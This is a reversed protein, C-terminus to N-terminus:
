PNIPKLQVRRNKSRGGESHNSAIPKDFGYGKYSLRSSSIGKNVLYEMVSRARKESLAQNYKASGVNDTHGQIEVKLSPNGIIVKAVENLTSFSQAKTYWKGTDFYVGALVWCGREDVKSGKPTGSCKDKYDAIGDGDSDPPCGKSDVKVGKPTEPCKDMYDAIGDGDSDPPCGKANVKVGKPTGPCDDIYDAVGDNDADLPCGKSDVKAVSPTGPCNDMYDAVGDRDADLPCGKSDVKAVSPTNPCKDLSDIVGDGDSDLPAAAMAKKKLFVREVFDAMDESSKLQDAHMFAGCKGAAAIKQLLMKGKSDDGILITYICLRDGFINKMNKAATLPQDTPELGDSLIIVAIKGKTTILDDTAADIGLGLPTHGAWTIPTIAQELESKSYKKLGYVLKTGYQNSFISKGLTRLGGNMDLEPITQNLRTLTNKALNIKQQGEHLSWMSASADMIILFSDVSKEYQSTKFEYPTFPTKTVACSMLFISIIFVMAMKFYIKAM